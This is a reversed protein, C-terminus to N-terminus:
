LSSSNNKWYIKDIQTHENHDVMVENYFFGLSKMYADMEKEDPVSAYKDDKYRNVEQIVYEARQFIQPAGEMILIEAGQVDQKILDYSANDGVLSTLTVMDREETHDTGGFINSGKTYTIKTRLKGEIRQTNESIYMNVKKSKNGLVAIHVEDACHILHKRHKEGAEVCTYHADKWFLKCNRTWHGNWAGIDLVKKPTYGKKKKLKKILYKFIDDRERRIMALRANEIEKYMHRNKM